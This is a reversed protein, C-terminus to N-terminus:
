WGANSKERGRSYQSEYSEFKRDMEVYSGGRIKADLIGQQLNKYDSQAMAHFLFPVIWWVFIFGGIIILAWKM